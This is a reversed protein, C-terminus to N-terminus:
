TDATTAMAFAYRSLSLGTIGFGGSALGTSTTASAGGAASAGTTTVVVGGAVVVVVGGTEVVSDVEAESDSDASTVGDVSGDVVSGVLRGRGTTQVTVGADLEAVGHDGFMGITVQLGRVGAGFGSVVGVGVGPWYAAGLLVWWYGAHAPFRGAIGLRDARDPVGRARPPHDWAVSVPRM